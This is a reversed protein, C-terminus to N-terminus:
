IGWSRSPSPNAPYAKIGLEQSIHKALAEAKPSRVSDTVVLSAGTTRVYQLTEDFDAHNSVAVTYAHESHAVVPSGENGYRASLIVVTGDASDPRRDGKGFLRIFRGDRIAVKGEPSNTDVISDVPYGYRRYVKLQRLFCTGALIPWDVKEYLVELAHQLTGGYGLLHVSGTKMQGVVLELLAADVSERSHDRHTRPSGYTSDLVLNEVKIVDELPWLFDGSYGFTTGDPLTL